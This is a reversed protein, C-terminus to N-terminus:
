HSPSPRPTPRPAPKGVASSASPSPSPPFGVAPAAANELNIYVARPDRGGPTQELAALSALKIDLSDIQEDTVMQGFLIRPGGVTVAALHRDADLEFGLITLRYAQPFSKVMRTLDQLLRPKLVRDRPQLPAGGPKEAFALHVDPLQGLPAPGLVEGDANLLYSRSAVQLFAAPEWEQVLVRVSDPLQAEVSVARVYPDTLIGTEARDTALLFISGGGGLGARRLLASRDVRHLGAVELQRVAFVPQRIVLLLGLVEATLVAVRLLPRAGVFLTRPTSPRRRAERVLSSRRRTNRPSVDRGRPRSM